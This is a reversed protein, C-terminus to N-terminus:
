IITPIARSRGLQELARHGIVRDDEYIEYDNGGQMHNM